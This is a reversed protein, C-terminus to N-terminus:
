KPLDTRSTVGASAASSIPSFLLGSPRLGRLFASRAMSRRLVTSAMM